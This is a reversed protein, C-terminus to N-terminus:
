FTESDYYINKLPMDHKEKPICNVKQFPYFVGICYAKQNSHIFTDYYGGGYGLRNNDDDFALGPVIILSYNGQYLINNKPHLTGMIGVELDELNTLIRNELQRKPLTKPCVVTIKQNILEALLPKIDIEGAIPIYAHVTQINNKQIYTYLLQCIKSDYIIKKVPDIQKRKLMMERRLLKKEELIKM